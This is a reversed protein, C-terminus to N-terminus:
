RGGSASRTTASRIRSGRGPRRWRRRTGADCCPWSRPVTGEDDAARWLERLTSRSEEGGWEGLAATLMRRGEPSAEGSALARLTEAREDEDLLALLQFAGSLAAEGDLMLARALLGRAEEVDTAAATAAAFRVMPDEDRLALELAWTRTRGEIWPHLEELAVTRVRPHPHILGDVLLVPHEEGLARVRERVWAQGIAEPEAVAAFVANREAWRNGAYTDALEARGEEFSETWPERLITWGEVVTSFLSDATETHEPLSHIILMLCEGLDSHVVTLITADLGEEGQHGVVEVAPLGAVEMVRVSRLENPSSEAFMDDLLDQAVQLVGTGVPVEFGGLVLAYGPEEPNTFIWYGDDPPDGELASPIWVLAGVDRAVLRELPWDRPELQELHRRREEANRDIQASSTAVLSALLALVLTTRPVRTRLIWM